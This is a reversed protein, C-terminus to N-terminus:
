AFFIEFTAHTSQGVDNDDEDEVGFVWADTDADIYFGVDYITCYAHTTGAPATSGDAEIYVDFDKSIADCMDFPIGYVATGNGSGISVQDPMTLKEWPDSNPAGDNKFIMKDIISKNYECVVIGSYTLGSHALPTGFCVDSGMKLEMDVVDNGGAVLSLNGTGSASIVNTAGDLGTFTPATGERATMITLDAATGANAPITYDVCSAYYDYTAESTTEGTCAFDGDGSNDDELVCIRLRTGPNYQFDTEGSIDEYETIEEPKDLDKAIACIVPSTGIAYMRSAKVDLNVADPQYSVTPAVTAPPIPKDFAGLMFLLGGFAAVVVLVMVTQQKMVDSALKKGM